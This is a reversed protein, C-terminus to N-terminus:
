FKNDCMIPFFANATAKPPAGIWGPQSTDYENIWPGDVYVAFRVPSYSPAAEAADCLAWDSELVTGWKEHCREPNAIIIYANLSGDPAVQRTVRHGLEILVEHTRTVPAVDVFCPASSM